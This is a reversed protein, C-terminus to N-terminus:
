TSSTLEEVADALAIVSQRADLEVTAGRRPLPEVTEVHHAIAACEASSRGYANNTREAMRALLVDLPASCSSIRSATMSGSGPGTVLVM